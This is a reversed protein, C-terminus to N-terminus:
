DHVSAAVLWATLLVVVVMFGTEHGAGRQLLSAAKHARRAGHGPAQLLPVVRFHQYAGIAAVVAVVAVKALLFLGWSTEWLQSPRDLIEVTLAVGALGVLAISGTALVAFRSGLLGADLPRADRRRRRLVVGVMVVGGVWAAAALLHTVDTTVVLWHPGVSRSHGDLVIGTGLLLAGVVALWSGALTRRAGVLVALAGAAQLGLVLATDGTLADRLASPTWAASIEGQAVVVARAALRLPVAVLALLGVWRVATLVTPVDERDRGRLVLAAFLLGGGAVLAGWLVAAGALRSVVAAFGAATEDDEEAATVGADTDPAPEPSPEESADPEAPEQAPAAGTVAFVVTGDLPHGDEAAVNWDVTYEGDTLPEAPTATLVTGDDSQTVEVPVAGDPGTVEVAEGLPTVPLTYTLVVEEVPGQATSGDAPEATDLKTHASAPGAGALLLLLALLFGGVLTRARTM